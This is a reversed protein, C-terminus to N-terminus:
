EKPVTKRNATNVMHMIFKVLSPRMNSFVAGTTLVSVVEPLGEVASPVIFISVDTGFVDAFGDPLFGVLGEPWVLAGDPAALGALGPSSGYHFAPVTRKDWKEHETVSEFQGVIGRFRHGLEGLSGSWPERLISIKHLFIM